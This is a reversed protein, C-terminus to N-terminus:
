RRHERLAKVCADPLAVKRSARDTKPKDLVLGSGPLRKLTACVSVTGADLDVDEWRLGLVEGRRLGIMVTLKILAEIRHGSAAAFLARVEEVSLADDLKPDSERPSDVLAAVNRAVVGWREAYSLARRLVMRATRRTQAALGREELKRMMRHVHTP